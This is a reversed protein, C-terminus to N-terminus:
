SMVEASLRMPGLQADAITEASRDLNFSLRGIVIKGSVAGTAFMDGSKNVTALSTVSQGFTFPRKPAFDEEVSSVTLATCGDVALVLLRRDPSLALQTVAHDVSGHYCPIM